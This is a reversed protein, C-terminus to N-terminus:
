RRRALLSNSDISRWRKCRTLASVFCIACLEDDLRDTRTGSEVGRKRLRM